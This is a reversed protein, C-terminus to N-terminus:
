LAKSTRLCSVRFMYAYWNVNVNCTAPLAVVQQEGIGETQKRIYGGQEKVLSFRGKASGMQVM